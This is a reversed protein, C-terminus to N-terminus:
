TNALAFNSWRSFRWVEATYCARFMARTIAVTLGERAFAPGAGAIAIAIASFGENKM